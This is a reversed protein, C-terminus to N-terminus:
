RRHRPFLSARGTSIPPADPATTIEASPGPSLADIVDLAREIDVITTGPGELRAWLDPGILASVLSRKAPDAPDAGRRQLRQRLAERVRRTIQTGALGTHTNLAWAMRSIETPRRDPEVPIHPADVGPELPVALQALLALAVVVLSWGIVFPWTFGFGTLGLAAIVGAAAATVTRGWRM